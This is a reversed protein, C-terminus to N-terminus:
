LNALKMGADKTYVFSGCTCTSEHVWSICHSVCVAVTEFLENANARSCYAHLQPRITLADPQQAPPGLKLGM